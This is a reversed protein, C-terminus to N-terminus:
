QSYEEQPQKPLDFWQVSIFDGTEMNAESLNSIPSDGCILFGVWCGIKTYRGVGNPYGPEAADYEEKLNRKHEVTLYFAKEHVPHVMQQLPSIHRFEWSHKRLFEELKPIDQRKFVDWVAGESETEGHIAATHLLVNVRDSLAYQLNTVSDLGLEEGGGYSFCMKPGLDPKLSMEPMMTSMNLYGARPHSYHKFPLCGVFESFHRPLREKLSEAPPWDELKLIKLQGKSDFLGDAYGKFFQHMNITEECWNLCNMVRFDLIQLHEAKRSKRCARWMVLPEWSLGTTRSLVNPVIIPEGNRLHWQFHKQDPKEVSAVTPGHFYNVKGEDPYAAKSTEGSNLYTGPNCRLCSSPGEFAEVADTLKGVDAVSEAKMILEPMWNDPYTSKLELYGRGCGEMEEPPCVITGKATLKWESNAHDM